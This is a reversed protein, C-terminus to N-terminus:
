EGGKGGPGKEGMDRNWAKINESYTKANVGKRGCMGCIGQGNGLVRPNPNGCKCKAADM